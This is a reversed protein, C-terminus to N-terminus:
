TEPKIQEPVRETRDLYMIRPLVSIGISDIGLKVAYGWALTSKRYADM